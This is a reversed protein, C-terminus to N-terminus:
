LPATHLGATEANNITNVNYRILMSYRAYPPPFAQSQASVFHRSINKYASRYKMGDITGWRRSIHSTFLMISIGTDISLLHGFIPDSKYLLRVKDEYVLAVYLFM